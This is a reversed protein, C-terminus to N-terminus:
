GSYVPDVVIPRGDSFVHCLERLPTLTLSPTSFHDNYPMPVVWREDLKLLFGELDILYRKDSYKSSTTSPSSPLPLVLLVVCNGDSEMTTTQLRLSDAQRSANHGHSQLVEQEGVMVM